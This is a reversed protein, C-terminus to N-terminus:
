FSLAKYQEYTEQRDMVKIPNGDNIKRFRSDCSYVFAGGFMWGVSNSDVSSEPFACPIGGKFKLELAPSTDSPEFVEPVGPGVLVLSDYKSTLGGNSCDSRGRLVFVLMGKKKKVVNFPSGIDYKEYFDIYEQTNVGSLFEKYDEDSMWSPKMKGANFLVFDAIHKRVDQDNNEKNVPMVDLRGSYTQGDEFYVIFKHKDYGMEPYTSNYELLGFKAGAWTKFVRTKGCLESPGEIRTIEIREVKVKSMVRGRKQNTGPDSSVRQVNKRNRSALFGFMVVNKVNM